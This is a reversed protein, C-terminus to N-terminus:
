PGRLSAAIDQFAALDDSMECDAAYALVGDTLDRIVSRVEDAVDRQESRVAAAKASDCEGEQKVGTKAAGNSCQRTIIAPLSCSDVPAADNERSLFLDLEKLAQMALALDTGCRRAAAREEAGAGALLRSCEFANALPETIRAQHRQGVAPLFSYGTFTAPPISRERRSRSHSTLAFLANGLLVTLKNAATVAEQDAAAEGGTTTMVTDHVDQAMQQTQAISVLRMQNTRALQTDDRPPAGKKRIRTFLHTLTGVERYSCQRWVFLSRNTPSSRVAMELTRRDVGASGFTALLDEVVADGTRGLLADARAIAAAFRSMHRRGFTMVLTARRKLFPSM